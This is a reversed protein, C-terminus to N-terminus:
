ALIFKYMIGPHAHSPLHASLLHTGAGPAGTPPPLRRQPAAKQNGELFSLEVRRQTHLLQLAENM